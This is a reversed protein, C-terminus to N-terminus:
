YLNYKMKMKKHDKGFPSLSRIISRSLIYFYLPNDNYKPSSKQSSIACGHQSALFFVQPLEELTAIKSEVTTASTMAIDNIFSPHFQADM